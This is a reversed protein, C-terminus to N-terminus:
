EGAFQRPYQITSNANLQVISGDSLVMKKLEGSVTSVVVDDEKVTPQHWRSWGYQSAWYVGIALAVMAAASMIRKYRWHGAVHGQNMHRVSADSMQAPSRINEQLGKFVKDLSADVEADDLSPQRFPLTDYWEEIIKKEEPSCKGQRYRDMLAALDDIHM